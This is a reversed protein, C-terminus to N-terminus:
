PSWLGALGSVIALVVLSITICYAGSHHFLTVTTLAGCSMFLLFTVLRRNRSPLLVVECSYGDKSRPGFATQQM